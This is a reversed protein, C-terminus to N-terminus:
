SKSWLRSILGMNVCLMQTMNMDRGDMLILFILNAIVLPDIMLLFFMKMLVLSSKKVCDKGLAKASASEALAADTLANYVIDVINMIKSKITLKKM